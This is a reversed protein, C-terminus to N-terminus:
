KQNPAITSSEDNILPMPEPFNPKENGLYEQPVAPVWSNWEQVSEGSVAQGHFLYIPILYVQRETNAYSPYFLYAIEARDFQVTVTPPLLPLPINTPAPERAATPTLRLPYAYYFDQFPNMGGKSIQKAAQDSSLAPYMSSEYPGDITGYGGVVTKSEYNINISILRVPNGNWDVVPRNNIIYTVYVSASPADVIATGMSDINVGRQDFFKKAIALIETDPPTDVGNPIYRPTINFKQQCYRQLSLSVAITADPWHTATWEGWNLYHKAFWGWKVNFRDISHFTAVIKTRPSLWGPIWVLTSQGAGHFHIIDYNGFSAHIAALTTHSIADLSQTPISPLRVLRVGHYSKATGAQYHPRVYVTVQHGRAALRTALVEVHREVGGNKNFPIAKLGLMAIKM